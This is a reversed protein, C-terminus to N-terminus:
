LKQFRHSSHHFVTSRMFVVQLFMRKTVYTWIFFKITITTSAIRNWKWRSPRSIICHVFVNVRVFWLRKGGKILHITSFNYYDKAKTAKTLEKREVSRGVLGCDWERRKASVSTYNFKMWLCLFQIVTEGKEALCAPLCANFATSVMTKTTLNIQM